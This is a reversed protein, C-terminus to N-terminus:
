ASVEARESEAQGDAGSTDTNSAASDAMGPKQGTYRQFLEELSTDESVIDTVTTREDVHRVVDVKRAASSCVATIEGDTVTM